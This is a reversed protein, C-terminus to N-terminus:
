FILWYLIMVLMGMLMIIKLLLSIHKFHSKKEATFLKIAVYILPGVVAVLFYIVVEPHMSIYANVYYVILLISVITLVFAIKATRNKGLIIPLTRMESNYDGDVDQIDKVIERIFNILFAFIGFDALVEFLTAQVNQNQETIAPLLDFIGVILLSSSVLASVVINGVVAIRKLSTSYVYLLAAIIVFFGFFQPRGISNAIYFGILAGIFTLAIYLTNATKESIYKDIVVLEPKNVSDTEVDYIDNIIYGGAAILLTALILLIFHFTDLTTDVAVANFLAYKVLLQVLAIMLLNKWRILNLFHIM